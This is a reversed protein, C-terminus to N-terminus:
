PIPGDACGGQEVQVPGVHPAGALQQLSQSPVVLERSPVVLCRAPGHGIHAVHLFGPATPWGSGWPSRRGAARGGYPPRSHEVVDGGEARVM